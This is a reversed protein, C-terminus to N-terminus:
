DALQQAIPAPRAVRVDLAEVQVAVGRHAGPLGLPRRTPVAAPATDNRAVDAVTAAGPSVASTQM